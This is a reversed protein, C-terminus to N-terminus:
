RAIPRRRQHYVRLVILTADEREYYVRLPPVPWSRVTKGTLLRQPPGDLGGEALRGVIDFVRDVLQAAAYPNSRAIYEAASTLDDIAEATFAFTM